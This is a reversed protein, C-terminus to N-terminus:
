SSKMAGIEILLDLISNIATRAQTDITAGLAPDAIFEPRDVPTGGWLILKQTAATGIQTGTTTGIQINRGDLIQLKDKIILRDSFFYESLISRMMRELAVLQEPTFPQM